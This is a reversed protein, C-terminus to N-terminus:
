APYSLDCLRTREKLAVIPYHTLKVLLSRSHDSM